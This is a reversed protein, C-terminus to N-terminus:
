SELDQILDDVNSFEKIRGAEIDELAENIHRQGEESWYWPDRDVLKKPIFLIGTKAVRVEFYDGPELRLKDWIEKPIVVQRSRGVKVTPM